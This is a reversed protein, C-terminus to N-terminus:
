NPVTPDTETYDTIFGSDNTLQSTRTPIEAALNESFEAETGTYGADQAYEYATKGPTGRIVPASQWEGTEPNRYKFLSM